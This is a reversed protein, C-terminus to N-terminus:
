FNKMPESCKMSIAIYPITKTSERWPVFDVFHRLGYM